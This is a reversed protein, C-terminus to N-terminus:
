KLEKIKLNRFEISYSEGELGLHGKEQECETYDCTVAGNVWLTLAKGKAKVEFTNWERAHKVRKDTVKNALGLIM